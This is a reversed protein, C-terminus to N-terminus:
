FPLATLIKEQASQIAYIIPPALEATTITTVSGDSLAEWQLKESAMGMMSYRVTVRTKGKIRDFVGDTQQFDVIEGQLIADVRLTQGIKKLAGPSPLADSCNIM